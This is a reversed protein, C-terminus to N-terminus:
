KKQYEHIVKSLNAVKVHDLEYFNLSIGTAVLFYDVYPLYYEVNDINVGSAIGLSREGIAEKMSVIKELSAAKGTIPGSTTVIDMFRTARRAAKKADEVHHGKFAVGGFYLGTFSSRKRSRSILKAYSTGDDDIGGDDVWIGDVTEPINRFVERSSLDLCNIGIWFDPYIEVSEAHLEILRESSMSGHNILFVGDAGHSKSIEINRLMQETNLVHIVPMFKKGVM